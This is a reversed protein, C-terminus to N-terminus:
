YEQIVEEKSVRNDNFFHCGKTPTISNANDLSHTHQKGFLTSHNNKNRKSKKLMKFTLPMNFKIQLLWFHPFISYGEQLSHIIM